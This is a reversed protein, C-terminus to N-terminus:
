QPSTSTVPQSYLLPVKGKHTRKRPQDQRWYLSITKHTQPSLNKDRWQTRTTRTMPRMRNKVVSDQVHDICQVEECSTSLASKSICEIAGEASVGLHILKVFKSISSANPYPHCVHRYMATMFGNQPANLDPSSRQKGTCSRLHLSLLLCCAWSTAM